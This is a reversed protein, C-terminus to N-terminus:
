SMSYTRGTQIQNSKTLQTQDNYMKVKQKNHQKVKLEICIPLHYLNRPSTKFYAILHRIHFYKSWLYYQIDMLNVSWQIMKNPKFKIEYELQFPHTQHSEVVQCILCIWSYAIANATHVDSLKVWGLSPPNQLSGVHHSESVTETHFDM